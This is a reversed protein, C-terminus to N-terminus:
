SIDKSNLCTSWCLVRAWPLRNVVGESSLHMTRPISHNGDERNDQPTSPEELHVSADWFVCMRRLKVGVGWSSREIESDWESHSSRLREGDGGYLM